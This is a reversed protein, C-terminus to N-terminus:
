GSMMKLVDPSLHGSIGATAASGSFGSSGFAIRNCSAFLACTLTVPPPRRGEAEVARRGLVEALLREKRDLAAGGRREGKDVHTRSRGLHAYVAM